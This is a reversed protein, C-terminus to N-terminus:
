SLSGTKIISSLCTAREGVQAAWKSNLMEDSAKDFDGNQLAIIMEHFNLMGQVGLNFCMDILAIQRPENLKSFWPLVHNLKDSFYIIDDDLLEFAETTSIGRDSLNRGIGVTIHGTIDVYPFQRYSEHRTLLVRLKQRGDPTM